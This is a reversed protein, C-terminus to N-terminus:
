SYLSLICGRLECVQQKIIKKQYAVTGTGHLQGKGDPTDIKLDVNGIAFYIPQDEKLTSPIFVGSNEKKKDLVAQVIGKKINVIKQYNAGLNLDSIFNVLKKSRSVHYMYLGLGINLPTEVKSYLSSEPNHHHYQTQRNSKLNQVVVETTVGIITKVQKTRGADLQSSWDFGM